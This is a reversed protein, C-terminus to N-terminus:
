LVLGQGSRSVPAPTKLPSVALTDLGKQTVIEKFWRNVSSVSSFSIECWTRKFHSADKCRKKPIASLLPVRGLVCLTQYRSGLVAVNQLAATRRRKQAVLRLDFITTEQDM